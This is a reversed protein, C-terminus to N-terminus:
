RRHASAAPAAGSAMDSASGMGQAMRGLWDLAAGVSDLQYQAVTAHAGHGVRISHGGLHNVTAFADEDTVDDGLFVPVRGAFPPEALFAEIVTGKHHGAPKLELIQKGPQLHFEEGLAECQRRLLAEAEDALEPAGRFHLTLANGKDELLTGPHRDVFAQMAARAEAFSETRDVPRWIRGAGDRRELGHIGAMTSLAGDLLQDLGALSRGSVIAVAGSLAQALNGLLAQLEPTVQVADPHEAIDVLTGDFDLFLAWDAAPAPLAGRAATDTGHAPQTM